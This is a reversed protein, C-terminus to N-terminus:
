DRLCPAEYVLPHPYLPSTLSGIHHLPLVSVRFSLSTPELGEIKTVGMGIFIIFLNGKTDKYECLVKDM